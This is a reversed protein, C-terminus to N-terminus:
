DDLWRLDVGKATLRNLPKAVTAYDPCFRRHYGVFGAFSRVEPTCKPTKWEVVAKVKEPDTKVVENSVIHGLYRVEKQLLECKSPKLKFNAGRFRQLVVQLCQLHTHFDSSFVIVDDLYLLLSKRQLGLLVKETLREFTAPLHLLVFVSGCLSCPAEEQVSLQKRRQM